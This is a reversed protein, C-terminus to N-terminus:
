PVAWHEGSQLTSGEHRPSQAPFPELQLRGLFGGLHLQCQSAM